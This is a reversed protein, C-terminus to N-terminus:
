RIQKWDRDTDTDLTLSARVFTPREPSLVPLSPSLESIDSGWSLSDVKQGNPNFISIKDGSYQLNDNLRPAFSRSSHPRLLATTLPARGSNDAIAWGALSIAQDTTNRLTIRWSNAAPAEIPASRDAHVLSVKQIIIQPLVPATLPASSISIAGLTVSSQLAAFTAGGAALLPAVVMATIILQRPPPIFSTTIKLGMKQQTSDQQWEEMRRALLKVEYLIVILTPLYIILGLGVPTRLFNIIHGVLPLTHTVKGVVSASAVPADASDNADGKLTLLKDGDEYQYGIFRHTITQQANEPHIYTLVDGVNIASEPVRQVLVASGPPIAPAMSGTQVTLLKVDSGPAGVLLLAIGVTAALLTLITTISNILSAM